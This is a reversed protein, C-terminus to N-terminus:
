CSDQGSPVVRQTGCSFKGRFGYLLDKTSWTQETLIATYQAREKNALKHVEVEGRDMFVCFFFEALMWGDQGWVQDIVWVYQVGLEVYHGSLPSSTPPLTASHNLASTNYDPPGPNLVEVM